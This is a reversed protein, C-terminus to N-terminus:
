KEKWKSSCMMMHEYLEEIQEEELGNKTLRRIKLEAFREADKGHMAAVNDQGNKIAEVAAEISNKQLLLASLTEMVAELHEVRNM